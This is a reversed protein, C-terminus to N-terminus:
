CLRWQHMYWPNLSALNIAEYRLRRYRDHETKDEPGSGAVEFHIPVHRKRLLVPQSIELHEKKKKLITEFIADFSTNNKISELTSLTLKVRRQSSAVSLSSSHM